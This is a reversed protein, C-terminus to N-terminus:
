PSRERLAKRRRIRLGSEGTSSSDDYLYSLRDIVGVVGDAQQALRVAVLIDSLRELQGELTVVGQAVRVTLKGPPLWLTRAFLDDVIEKRIEADPRLFVQLLDRRTVIGALQGLEDVVPLREVGHGAMTRAAGAVTEGVDVTVAPCTMLQAATMVPMALGGTTGGSGSEWRPADGTQRLVLDSESIVGLIRREADVVPVGSINHEALLGAIEKFPMETTVCVVDRVMLNGIKSHRM